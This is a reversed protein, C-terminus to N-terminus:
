VIQEQPVNLEDEHENKISNNETETNNNQLNEELIESNENGDSLKEYQDKSKKNKLIEHMESCDPFCTYEKGFIFLNTYKNMSHIFDWICILGCLFSYKYGEIACEIGGFLSYGIYILLSLVGLVPILLLCLIIYLSYMILKLSSLNRIWEIFMSYMQIILPILKILWVPTLVIIGVISGYCALFIGVIIKPINIDFPEDVEKREMEFLFSFYSHYNFYWFKHILDLVDKFIEVIGGFFLDYNSNFTNMTAGVFSYIFGSCSSSFLILIPWGALAFPLLLMSLIKLNIGIISTKIFARYTLVIDHPLLILAIGTFGFISMISVPISIILGKIFGIIPLGGCCFFVWLFNDSKVRSM